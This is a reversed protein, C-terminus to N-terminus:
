FKTALISLIKEKYHTGSRTGKLIESLYSNSIGLENALRTLKVGKKLMESRIKMGFESYTTM